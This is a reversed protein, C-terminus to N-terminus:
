ARRRPGPKHGRKLVVVIINSNDKPHWLEQGLSARREMVAIKEPSGAPAQTPCEASSTKGNFDLIGKGRFKSTSPYLNRIDARYYCSWCLGRPRNVLRRHCHLCLPKSRSM